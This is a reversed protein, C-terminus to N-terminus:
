KTKYYSAAIKKNLHQNIHMFIDLIGVSFPTCSELIIQLAFRQLRIKKPTM